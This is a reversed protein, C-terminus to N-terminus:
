EGKHDEELEGGFDGIDGLLSIHSPGRPYAVLELSAQAVSYCGTEFHLVFQFLFLFLGLVLCVGCVGSHGLGARKTLRLPRLHEEVLCQAPHPHLEGLGPM